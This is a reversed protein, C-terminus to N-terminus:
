RPPATSRRIVIETPLEVSDEELTEDALLRILLAAAEAGTEYLQQQVTTLGLYPAMPVDDYGIVSLEGPVDVGADRAAELVGFAQLDSAAVIATPREPLSLLERTQRHAEERGHDAVQEYGAPVPLGAEAMALRYGALRDVSSTFGFSEDFRDGVFAVRTHGLGILHDTAKRGGAVDDTFVHPLGEVRRDVFVVPVSAAALARVADHSPALSMILVGARDARAALDFRRDRQEPTHVDYLVLDYGSGDLVDAVGRLRAVVSSRTFFPVIVALTTSRGLSLARALSSPRYGIEDIVQQVRTRTAESVLPSENIVRSVTGVGVGARRAVDQITAM